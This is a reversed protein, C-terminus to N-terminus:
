EDEFRIGGKPVYREDDPKRAIDGGRIAVDIEDVVKQGAAMDQRFWEEPIEMLYAVLPGGGKATGVVRKMPKKSGEETVHQYGADKAQQIRDLVDNFWHRHYGERKPAALKQAMSGFPKRVFGPRPGPDDPNDANVEGATQPPMDLSAQRAPRPARPQSQTGRPAATQTEETM